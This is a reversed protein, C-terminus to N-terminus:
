NKKFRWHWPEFSVGLDNDRPYSLFFGFDSAHALLWAYEPTNAFGEVDGDEPVGDETLFDVALNKPDGHESYGPVAVLSCVKDIDFGYFAYYRLWTLTQYTPSRYGSQVLLKKGLDRQLQENMAELALHVDETVYKGHLTETSGRRTFPQNPIAILDKPPDALAVFTGKFGHELPHIESIAEVIRREDESILGYLEDFSIIALNDRNIKWTEVQMVLEQILPRQNEDLAVPVVESSNM